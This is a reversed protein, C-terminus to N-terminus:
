RRQSAADTADGQQAAQGLDKKFLTAAPKVWGKSRYFREADRWTDAIVVSCGRNALRREVEGLMRSGIGRGQCAPSVVLASLYGRFGTDHASAFGNIIGDDVHVVAVTGSCEMARDLTDPRWADNWFGAVSKMLRLIDPVDSNNASRIM